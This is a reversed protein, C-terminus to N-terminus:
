LKFTVINYELNLWSKAAKYFFFFFFFFEMMMCIHLTIINLEKFQANKIVYQNQMKNLDIWQKM